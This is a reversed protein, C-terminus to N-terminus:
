SVLGLGKLLTIVEQVFSIVTIGRLFNESINFFPVKCFGHWIIGTTSNTKLLIAHISELGTNKSFFLNWWPHIKLTQETLDLTLEPKPLLAPHHVAPSCEILVMSCWLSKSFHEKLFVLKQFMKQFYHAIQVSYAQLKVSVFEM